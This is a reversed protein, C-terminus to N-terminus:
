RPLLGLTRLCDRLPTRYEPSLPTLPLRIQSSCLSMEHLAWKVPIPNTEVGLLEFLQHLRSELSTATAWDGAEAARCISRFEAPAVNAAVSIVGKAGEKMAELFTGDDGGLVTFGPGCLRVLEATRGAVPAAEKVGIISPHQALQRVTEPRMDVATRTPVNYLILPIESNDAIARFHAILGHQTPRNYYPTVVLAGDAGLDAAERTAAITKETANSGTGAIVPVRGKVQEIVATLLRRFEGARLTVSEGTTGGIVIGDTGKEVQFSVLSSLAAFDIEGAADFPTVLAVLNGKFMRICKGKVPQM